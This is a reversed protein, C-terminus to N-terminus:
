KNKNFKRILSFIIEKEEQTLNTINISEVYDLGLLYDVSVKYIHAMLILNQITPLSLGSEWGNIASRTIGLIGALDEQSFKNEKRVDRLREGIDINTFKGTRNAKIEHSNYRDKEKM